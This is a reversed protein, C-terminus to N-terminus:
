KESFVDGNEEIKSDEYPVTVRRYFEKSVCQLVGELSNCITYSPFDRYREFLLKSIIYNLHGPPWNNDRLETCLENISTDYGARAIKEIYPM